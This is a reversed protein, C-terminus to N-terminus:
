PTNKFRKFTNITAVRGSRFPGMMLREEFAKRENPVSQYFPDGDPLSPLVALVCIDACAKRNTPPITNRTTFRVRFSKTFQWHFLVSLSFAIHPAASILGVSDSSKLLVYEDKVFQFLGRM